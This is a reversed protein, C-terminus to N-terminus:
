YMSRLCLSSNTVKPGSPKIKSEKPKEVEEDEEDDETDDETRAGREAGPLPPLM